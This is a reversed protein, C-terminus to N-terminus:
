AGGIIDSWNKGAWGFSAFIAMWPARRRRESRVVHPAFKNKAFDNRRLADGEYMGKPHLLCDSGAVLPDCCSFPLRNSGLGVVSAFSCPILATRNNTPVRLPANTRVDSPLRWRHPM